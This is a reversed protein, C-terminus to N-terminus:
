LNYEGNFDSQYLDKIKLFLLEVQGALDNYDGSNNIYFPSMNFNSSLTKSLEDYKISADSFFSKKLDSEMDDFFPLKTARASERKVAVIFPSSVFILCPNMPLLKQILTQFRAPNLDTIISLSVLKGLLGEDNIIYGTSRSLLCRIVATDVIMRTVLDRKVKRVHKTQAFSKKPPLFYLSIIRPTTILIVLIEFIIHINIWLNKQVVGRAEIDISKSKSMDLLLQTVTTKGVGAVGVLEIYKGAM